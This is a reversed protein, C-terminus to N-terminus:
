KHPTGRLRLLFQGAPTPKAIEVLNKGALEEDFKLWDQEKPQIYGHDLLVNMWRRFTDDNKYELLPKNQLDWLLIYPPNGLSYIVLKNIIDQQDSIQQEQVKIQQQLFEFEAGLFKGSKLFRQLFPILWPLMALLVLSLGIADIKVSPVFLHLIVLIIASLSIAISHSRPINASDKHQMNERNDM